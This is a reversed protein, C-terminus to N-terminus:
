LPPVLHGGIWVGAEASRRDSLSQENAGYCRLATVGEPGTRLVLVRPLDTLRLWDQLEYSAEIEAIWVEDQHWEATIRHSTSRLQGLVTSLLNRAEDPGDARRGDAVLFSVDPAMLAMVGDIDLRDLSQLLRVIPSDSM